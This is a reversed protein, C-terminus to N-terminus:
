IDVDFTVSGLSVWLIKKKKKSSAKLLIMPLNSVM